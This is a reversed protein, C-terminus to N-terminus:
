PALKRAPRDHDHGRKMAVAALNLRPRAPAPDETLRALGDAGARLWHLDDVYSQRLRAAQTDDFPSWRAGPTTDPLTDAPLGCDALAARLASADPRRRDAFRGPRAPPLSPCDTLVALLRDPRDAFSEHLTIRIEAGPCACALDTVVDRWRRPAACIRDLADPGPLGEGRLARSAILSAWWSEPSRLQLTVRLPSGFAAGIRAMREGIGPYLTRRRLCHRASGILAQDSVVLAILGARRAAALNLAVRGAARQANRPSLPRDAVGTLLGGRTRDPGWAGIGQARLAADQSRLYSQFSTAATRHAGLHLIVDM